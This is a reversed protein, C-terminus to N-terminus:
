RRTDIQLITDGKEVDAGIAAASVINLEGKYAKFRLRVEFPDVPEFAGAASVNLKLSGRKVVTTPKTTPATTPEANATSLLSTILLAAALRSLMSDIEQNLPSLSLPLGTVGRIFEM